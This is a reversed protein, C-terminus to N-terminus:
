PVEPCSVFVGDGIAKAKALEETPWELGPDKAPRLSIVIFTRYYLLSVAGIRDVDWGGSKSLPMDFQLSAMDGPIGLYEWDLGGYQLNRPDNHELAKHKRLSEVFRRDSLRADIWGKVYSMKQVDSAIATVGRCAREYSSEGCAPLVAALM